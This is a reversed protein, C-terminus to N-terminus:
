SPKRGKRMRGAGFFDAVAKERPKNGQFKGRRCQFSRCFRLVDTFRVGEKDYPRKLRAVVQTAKLPKLRRADYLLSRSLNEELDKNEFFEILVPHADISNKRALWHRLTSRPVDTRKAFDRQSIIQDRAEYASVLKAADAREWKGKGIAVTHLENYSTELARNPKKTSFLDTPM